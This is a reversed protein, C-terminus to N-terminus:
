KPLHILGAHYEAHCNACLLICKDLEKKLSELARTHNGGITYEKSGTDSHHFQLAAMCRNYGCVACCGGKYEIAWQKVKMRNKHVSCNNCATRRHGKYRNYVFTKGCIRCVCEEGLSVKTLDSTNHRGFPSCELCFKRKNLM